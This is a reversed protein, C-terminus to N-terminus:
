PSQGQWDQPRCLSRRIFLVWPPAYENKLTGGHLGSKWAAPCLMCEVSWYAAPEESLIAIPNETRSAKVMELRTNHIKHKLRTTRGLRYARGAKDESHETTTASPKEPYGQGYQFQSSEFESM